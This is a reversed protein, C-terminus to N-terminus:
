QFMKVGAIQSQLIEYLSGNTFDVTRQINLATKADDEGSPETIMIRQITPQSGDMGGVEKYGFMFVNDFETPIIAAAKRGSTVISRTRTVIKTKLDPASEVTTIHATFIINKPNGPRAWLIKATDLIYSIFRTEHNYININIAELMPKGAGTRVISQLQKPTSEGLLESLSTVVLRCMSTISDFILTEHPCGETQFETMKCAVENLDSFTDYEVRKKPFHKLAITPMKRDFDFVYPSPYSLAGVSKGAGSPGKFLVFHGHEEQVDQTNM